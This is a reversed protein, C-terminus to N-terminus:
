EELKIMEQKTHTFIYNAFAEAGEVSMHIGDGTVYERKPQLDKNSTILSSCIDLFYIKNKEALDRLGKNFEIFRKNSLGPYKKLAHNRMTPISLLYITADKANKKINDILMEYDILADESNVLNLTNTGMMVYVKKPKFNELLEALNAKKHEYEFVKSNSASAISAGISAIYKAGKFLRRSKISVTLSDGIFVADEFYKEDVAESEAIEPGMYLDEIDQLDVKIEEAICFNFLCCLVILSLLNKFIKM